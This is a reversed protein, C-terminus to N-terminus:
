AMDYVSMWKYQHQERERKGKSTQPVQINAQDDKWRDDNIKEDSAIFIILGSLKRIKNAYNVVGEEAKVYSVGRYGGGWFFFVIPGM